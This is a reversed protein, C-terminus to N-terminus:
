GGGIPLLFTVKDHDHLTTFRNREEGNVFASVFKQHDRQVKLLNLLDEITAGENVEVRGNKQLGQIHLLGTSEVVITILGNMLLDGITM